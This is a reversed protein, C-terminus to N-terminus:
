RSLNACLRGDGTTIQMWMRRQREWDWERAIPLLDALILDPRGNAIAPLFLLVEQIDPALLTLSLIQSMRAPSVHGVRALEAQRTVAGSRLLGEMRIALAMLRTVRPLRGFEPPTPPEMRRSRIIRGGQGRRDLTLECEVTRTGTM